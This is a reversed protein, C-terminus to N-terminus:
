SAGRAVSPAYTAYACCYRATTSATLLLHAEDVIIRHLLHAVKLRTAWSCFPQQGAEEITALVLPADAGIALQTSGSNM